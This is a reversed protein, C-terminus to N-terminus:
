EVKEAKLVAVQSDDKVIGSEEIAELVMKALNDVDPRKIRMKKRHSESIDILTQNREYDFELAVAVPGDFTEGNAAVKLMMALDKIYERQRTPTYQKGTKGVKTRSWPVPRTDYVLSIM